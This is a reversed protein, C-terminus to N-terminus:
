TRKGGTPFEIHQRRAEQPLSAQNFKPLVNKHTLLAVFDRMRQERYADVDINQYNFFGVGDRIGNRGEEMNSNIIAPARYREDLAGSLYKSAYYLIDGGGWDIFELLGLVAFRLGFGYNVAKDIDEPSAVGEEVLRAAENMALAQIRPVIYGPSASCVVPVKGISELSAVLDDVSQQSTDDGRAIEVLPMLHAPNLWHANLFRSPQYVWTALETVLFTSTTSAIVADPSANEALYKLCEVKATMVEPVAEFIVDCQALAKGPAERHSFTLRELVQDVANEELLGIKTLFQLDLTLEKLAAHYLAERDAKSRQKIDVLLVPIGAFIYSLAIGRGMRGVGIVGVSKM